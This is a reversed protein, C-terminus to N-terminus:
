FKENSPSNIPFSPITFLQHGREHCERCLTVLYKNAYQWPLRKQGTKACFHYQRHHVDLYKTSGCNLCKHGDRNLIVKRKERWQTFQLLRAYEPQNNIIESMLNSNTTIGTWQCFHTWIPM